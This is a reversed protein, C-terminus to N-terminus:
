LYTSTYELSNNNTPVNALSGQPKRMFLDMFPDVSTSDEQRVIKPKISALDFLPKKPTSQQPQPDTKINQEGYITHPRSSKRRNRPPPKIPSVIQENSANSLRSNTSQKASVSEEFMSLRKKTKSPSETSNFTTWSRRVVMNDTKDTTAQLGPNSPSTKSKDPPQDLSLRVGFPDPPIPPIETSESPQEDVAATEKHNDSRLKGNTPNGFELATFPDDNTDGINDSLASLDPSSFPDSSEFTISDDTQDFSVLEDQLPDFPQDFFDDQFPNVVSSQRHSKRQQQKPPQEPTSSIDGFM